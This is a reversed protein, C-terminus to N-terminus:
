VFEETTNYQTVQGQDKITFADVDNHKVDSALCKLLKEIAEEMTEAQIEDSYQVSFYKM